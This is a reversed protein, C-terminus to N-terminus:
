RPCLCINGRNRRRGNFAAPDWLRKTRDHFRRNSETLNTNGNYLPANTMEESNYEIRTLELLSPNHSRILNIINDLLINLKESLVDNSSDYSVSYTEKQKVTM